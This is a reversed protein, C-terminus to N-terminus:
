EDPNIESLIEGLSRGGIYLNSCVEKCPYAGDEGVEGVISILSIPTFLLITEKSFRIVVNCSAAEAEIFTGLLKPCQPRNDFEFTAIGEKGALRRNMEVVYEENTM